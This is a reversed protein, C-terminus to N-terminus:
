EEPFLKNYLYKYNSCFLRKIEKNNLMNMAENYTLTSIRNKLGLLRSMENTEAKLENIRKTISDLDYGKYDINQRQSLLEENKAIEENLESIQRQIDSDGMAGIINLNKIRDRLYDNRKVLSDLEMNQKMIEMKEICNIHFNMYYEINVDYEKDNIISCAIDDIVRNAEASNMENVTNEDSFRLFKKYNKNDKFSIGSNMLEEKTHMRYEVLLIGFYAHACHADNNLANDFFRYADDWDEDELAMYGRQLLANINPNAHMNGPNSVGLTITGSSGSFYEGTTYAETANNRESEEKAKNLVDKLAELSEEREFSYIKISLNNATKIVFVNNHALWLWYFVFLVAVAGSGYVSEPNNYEEAINFLYLGVGLFVLAWLLYPKSWKSNVYVSKIDSGDLNWQEKVNTRLVKGYRTVKIDRGNRKIETPKLYRIGPFRILFGRTEYGILLQEENESITNREM